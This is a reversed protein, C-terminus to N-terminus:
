QMEHWYATLLTNKSLELDILGVRYNYFAQALFLRAQFLDEEYRILTDVDSRGQGVRKIQLDLKERHLGVVERFFEVQSSYTNLRSVKDNLEKLINREIRKFQLLLQEKELNVRELEARAQRNELPITVTLGVFLEDSNEGELGSWANRRKGNLNNRAFSAELDIEPWLANKKVVIDLKNKKLDNKIRQYDRRTEVAAAAQAYLDARQTQIDLRDKPVISDKFDGANILFLLNNKATERKLRAIALSSQRTKVLAEVALLESKEVLGLDYKEVYAASLKEAEELMGQAVVVEEAHLVLNWYARQVDFIVQEIADLSTFEANEIDLETLKIQARDALGFFNKGLEQKLSLSVLAENYPNLSTFSSDSRQKIGQAEFSLTTGSPLKKSLGASFIHEKTETGLIISSQEKRNRSFSVAATFFTDFISQAEKLSTRSIAADFRAIQIDLSNHLALETVEELSLTLEAAQRQEAQAASVVISLSLMLVLRAASARAYQHRFSTLKRM